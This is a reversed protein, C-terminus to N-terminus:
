GDPLRSDWMDQFAKEMNNAFSPGDCLPSAGIRDRLTARLDKLRALDAALAAAKQVYEQPTEGVLDNLGAHTSVAGGMRGIFREGLQRVDAGIPCIIRRLLLRRSNDPAFTDM